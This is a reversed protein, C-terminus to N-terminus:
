EAVVVMAPRINRGNLTYGSQMVRIITNSKADESKEQSMAQHLNPDFEDGVKPEVAVVGSKELFQTLMQQIFEFGQLVNKVEKNETSEVQKMAMGFGDLVPFLEEIVRENAFKKFNIKDQETRRKVNELEALARLKADEAAKVQALLAVSPPEHIVPTESPAGDKAAAQAQIDAINITETPVPEVKPDTAQSDKAETTKESDTEPSEDKVTENLVPETEDKPEKTKKTKAKSM